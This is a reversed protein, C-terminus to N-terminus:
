GDQIGAMEFRRRALDIDSKRTRRSIKTFAHLVYVTDGLNACYIVRYQGSAERIRIERVGKGVTKMPKWDDPNEGRQVKDIQFGTDQRADLPFARIRALSNGLFVVSKM